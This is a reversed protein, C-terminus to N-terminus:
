SAEALSSVTLIATCLFGALIRGPDKMDYDYLTSPSVSVSTVVRVCSPGLLVGIVQFSVRTSYPQHDVSSTSSIWM